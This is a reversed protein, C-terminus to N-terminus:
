SRNFGFLEDGAAPTEAYRRWLVRAALYAAAPGNHGAGLAFLHHPYNRHPGACVVGDPAQAIASDWGYDPQAGSVEPYLLSLEYMLQGTRQIVTRPRARDPIPPQDAGAFLLRGDRTRSLLRSAGAGVTVAVDDRGLRRRLAGELSPTLAAYTHLRNFHRELSRFLPAPASTAIVVARAAIPGGRTEVEVGSRGARVRVAPSQEFLRAGRADAARALGLCARYPDLRAGTGTRIGSRAEIGLDRSLRSANLWVADLGAANLAKHERRLLAEDDDQRAIAVVDCPDLDCRIKLRRLLGAFDLAAHRSAEWMRRAARRGYLRELDAFGASPHPRILGTGAGTAGHGIRGAELLCTKAGAAAFVYATTCGMLGGGVVVVDCAL